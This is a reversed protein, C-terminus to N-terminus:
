IGIFFTGAALKFGNQSTFDFTCATLIDSSFQIMELNGIQEYKFTDVASAATIQEAIAIQLLILNMLMRYCLHKKSTEM